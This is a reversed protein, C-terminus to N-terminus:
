RDGGARGFRSTLGETVEDLGRVSAPPRDTDDVDLLLVRAGELQRQVAAGLGRREPIGHPRSALGPTSV